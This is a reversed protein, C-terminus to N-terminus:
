ATIIRNDVTLTHMFGGPYLIVEMKKAFIQGGVAVEPIFQPTLAPSHASHKKRVGSTKETQDRKLGEEM